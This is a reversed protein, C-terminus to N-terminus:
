SSSPTKGAAPSKPKAGAAGASAEAAGNGAQARRASQAKSPHATSNPADRLSWLVRMARPLASVEGIKDCQDCSQPFGDASPEDDCHSCHAVVRLTGVLDTRLRDLRAMKEELGTIEAELAETIGQAAAPGSLAKGKLELVRRIEDLSMGAARMDTVLLLRELEPQEFLRHGGETRRVPTLIGAEEYFRVTRLTNDSLRAM